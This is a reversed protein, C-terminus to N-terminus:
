TVVAELGFAVACFLFPFPFFHIYQHTKHKARTNEIQCAGKATNWTRVINKMNESATESGADSESWEGDWERTDHYQQKHNLESMIRIALAVSVQVM